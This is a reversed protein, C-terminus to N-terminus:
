RAPTRPIAMLRVRGTAVLKGAEDRIAAEWLQSTKGVHLPTAVARLLGQRVPRLFSTQNEVGVVTSQADINLSAGVSCATEVVGSYVGGHVLGWPQLHQDAVTWEIEVREASAHSLRLGMAGFWGFELPNAQPPPEDQM